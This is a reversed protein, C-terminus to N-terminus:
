VWAESREQVTQETQHYRHMSVHQFFFLIRKNCCFDCHKRSSLFPQSKQEAESGPRSLSTVSREEAFSSTEKVYARMRIHRMPRQVLLFRSRKAFEHTRVCTVHMCTRIDVKGFLDRNRNTWHGIRWMRIRAYTCQFGKFGRSGNRSRNNVPRTLFRVFSM